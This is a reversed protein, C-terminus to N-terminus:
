DGRPSWGPLFIHGHHQIAAVVVNFSEGLRHYGDPLLSRSSDSHINYRNGLGQINASKIELGKLPYPYKKHDPHSKSLKPKSYVPRISMKRMLTRVACRGIKYGRSRLADCIRRGGFYPHSDHILRRSKWGPVFASFM